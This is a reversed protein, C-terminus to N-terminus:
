EAQDRPKGDARGPNTSLIMAPARESRVRGWQEEWVLPTVVAPLTDDLIAAVIDPALTTLNM